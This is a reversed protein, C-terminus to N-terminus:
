GNPQPAPRQTGERHQGPKERRQWWKGKRGVALPCALFSKRTKRIANGLQVTGKEKLSCKM